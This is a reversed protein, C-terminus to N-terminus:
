TLFGDSRCFRELQYIRLHSLMALLEIKISKKSDKDQTIWEFQIADTYGRQNTLSWVWSLRQNIVNKWPAENSINCLDIDKLNYYAQSNIDISDDEDIVSIIIITNSFVLQIAIPEDPIDEDIVYNVKSLLGIDKEFFIKSLDVDALDM